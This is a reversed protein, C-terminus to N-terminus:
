KKTMHITLFSGWSLTNTFFRAVINPLIKEFTDKIKGSPLPLLEVKLGTINFDDVKFIDEVLAR